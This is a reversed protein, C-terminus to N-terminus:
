RMLRWIMLCLGVSLAAARGIMVHDRINVFSGDPSVVRVPRRYSVDFGVGTGGLRVWTEHSVLRFDGTATQVWESTEDRLRGDIVRDIRHTEFLVPDITAVM